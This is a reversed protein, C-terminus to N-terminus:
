SKFQIVDIFPARLKNQLLIRRELHVPSFTIMGRVNKQNPHPLHTFVKDGAKSMGPM